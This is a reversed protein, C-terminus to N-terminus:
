CWKPSARPVENTYARYSDVTESAVADDFRAKAVGALEPQFFSGPTLLLRAKAGEAIAEMYSTALYDPIGTAQLSPILSVQVQVKDGAAFLGTLTYSSLDTSILAKEGDAFQSWDSPRLRYSQLKLRSGNLTAQELRLLEAESPLDFDYEVGTGDVTTAAELWQM